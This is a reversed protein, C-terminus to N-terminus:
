LGFDGGVHISAGTEFSRSVPSDGLTFHERLDVTAGVIFMGVHLDMSLGIVGGLAAHDFKDAAASRANWNADMESADGTSANAYMGSMGVFGSAYWKREDGSICPCNVRIVYAVDVITTAFGYGDALGFSAGAMYTGRVLVGHNLYQNSNAFFLRFALDTSAGGAHDYGYGLLPDGIGTTGRDMLGIGLTIELSSFLGEQDGTYYREETTDYDQAQVGAATGLWAGVLALLAM